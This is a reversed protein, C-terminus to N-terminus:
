APKSFTKSSYRIGNLNSIIECVNTASINLAVNKLCIKGLKKRVFKVDSVDIIFVKRKM